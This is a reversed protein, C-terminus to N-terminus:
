SKEYIYLNRYHRLDYWSSKKAIMLPIVNEEQSRDQKAVELIDIYELNDIIKQDILYNECEEKSVALLVAIVQKERIIQFLKKENM